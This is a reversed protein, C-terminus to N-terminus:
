ISYKYSKMRSVPVFLAHQSVLTGSAQSVNYLPVTMRVSEREDRVNNCFSQVKTVYYFTMSVCM